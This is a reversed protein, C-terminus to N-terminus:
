AARLLWLYLAAALVSLASRVAHIQDGFFTKVLRDRHLGYM